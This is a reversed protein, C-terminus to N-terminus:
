FIKDIFLVEKCMEALLPAIKNNDDYYFVNRTGLGDLIGQTFTRVNAVYTVAYNITDAADMQLDEFTGYHYHIFLYVVPYKFMNYAGLAEQASDKGETESLVLYLYFAYCVIEKYLKIYEDKTWPSKRGM